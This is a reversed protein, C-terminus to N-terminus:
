CERAGWDVQMSLFRTGEQQRALWSEAWPSVQGQGPAALLPM